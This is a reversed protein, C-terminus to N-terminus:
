LKAGFKKPRFGIEQMIEEAREPSPRVREPEPKQKPLRAAAAQGRKLKLADVVQKPRPKYDSELAVKRLGWVVQEVTWEQLADCWWALNAASVADDTKKVYDFLVVEVEFAIRARHEELEQRSMSATVQPTPAEVTLAPLTKPNIM